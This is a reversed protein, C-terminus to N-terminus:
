FTWSVGLTPTWQHFLGNHTAGSSSTFTKPVETVYDRIEVRFMLNKAGVRFKVGAGFDAVGTTEQTRTLLGLNSLPQFAQETGTARYTKLGGGGALYFRVPAERKAFYYLLDYHLVHSHGAFTAETSGSKLKLSNHSFVYRLEGGLRDGMSQGLFLGGAAGPQFGFRGATSGSRVDVGRYTSAVALAGAEWNQQALAPLALGLCSILFLMPPFRLKM